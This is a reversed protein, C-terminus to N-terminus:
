ILQTDLSQQTFHWWSFSFFFCQVTAIQKEQTAVTHRTVNSTDINRQLNRQTQVQFRRCHVVLWTAATKQHGLTHRQRGTKRDTQRDTQRDTHTQRHARTHHELNKSTKFVQKFAQINLVMKSKLLFVGDRDGM